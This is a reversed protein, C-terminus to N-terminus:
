RCGLFPSIIFAWGVAALMGVGLLTACTFLVLLLGQLYREVTM